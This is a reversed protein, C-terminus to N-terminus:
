CHFFEGATSPSGRRLSRLLPRGADDSHHSDIDAEEFPDTRKFGLPTQNPSDLLSHYSSFSSQTTSPTIYSLSPTSTISAFSSVSQSSPALTFSVSTSSSSGPSSQVSASSPSSPVHADLERHEGFSTPIFDGANPNLSGTSFSAISDPPSPPARPPPIPTSLSSHPSGSM